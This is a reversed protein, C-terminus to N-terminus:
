RATAGRMPSRSRRISRCSTAPLQGARRRVARRGASDAGDRAPRRAVDPEAKLAAQLVTMADDLRGWPQLTSLVFDTSYITQSPDLDIARRFAVEADAWRREFAHLYGQVAHGEALDATSPWRRTSSRGCRRRPRSRRSRGAASSRIRFRSAATPGPWPRMHPRTPAFRERIVDKFIPIAARANAAASKKFPARGGSFIWLWCSRSHRLAEAARGHRLGWASSSRGRSTM